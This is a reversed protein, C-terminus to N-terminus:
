LAVLQTTFTESFEASTTAADFKSGEFSLELPNEKDPVEQAKSKTVLAFRLVKGEEGETSTMAAIVSGRVEM